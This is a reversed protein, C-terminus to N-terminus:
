KFNKIIKCPNGYAVTNSGISIIVNSGSGIVTNEGIITNQIVTSNTGVHTYNGIKVTGSLVCGPAIHVFDGIECDHEIISGTNIIAGRGIRTGTNIIVGKGIFVGEGIEINEALIATKDIIIPFSFGIKKAFLYLKTRLSVDGISGLSIVAKKIGSKYIEELVKDTGIINVGNIKKGIKTKIDTIGVIEYENEQNISDSVSKCHGGGGILIIKKKM